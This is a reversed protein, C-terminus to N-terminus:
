QKKYIIWQATGPLRAHFGAKAPVISPFNIWPNMWGKKTRALYHGAPYKRSRKIFVITGERSLHKRTKETLKGSVYNFGLKSLAQVLEKLYFGRTSALNSKVRKLVKSYSVNAVCAVCALGCGLPHEQVVAKM